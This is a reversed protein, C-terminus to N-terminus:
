NSCDNENARSENDHSLIPRCKRDCRLFIGGFWGDNHDSKDPTEHGVVIHDMAAHLEARMEPGSM